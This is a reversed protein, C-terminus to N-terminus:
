HSLNSPISTYLLCTRTNPTDEELQQVHHEQWDSIVAGTQATIEEQPMDGGAPKNDEQIKDDKFDM